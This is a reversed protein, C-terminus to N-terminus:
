KCLEGCRAMLQEALEYDPASYICAACPGPTFMTEVCNPERPPAHRACGLSPAPAPVVGPECWNEEAGLSIALLAGLLLGKTFSPQRHSPM